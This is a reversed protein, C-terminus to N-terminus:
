MNSDMSESQSPAKGIKRGRSEIVIEALQIVVGAALIYYSVEALREAFPQSGITLYFAAGMLLLMFAEPYHYPEGVKGENAKELVLNWTSNAELKEIHKRRLEIDYELPRPEQM